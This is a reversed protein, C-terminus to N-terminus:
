RQSKRFRWGTRARLLCAISLRFKSEQPDHWSFRGFDAEEIGQERVRLLPAIALDIGNESPAPALDFGCVAYRDQVVM